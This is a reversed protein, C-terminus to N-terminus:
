PGRPRHPIPPFAPTASTVRPHLTLTTIASTTTTTAPPAPATAIRHLHLLTVVSPPTLAATSTSESSARTSQRSGNRHSFLHFSENSHSSQYSTAFPSSQSVDFSRHTPSASSPPTPYPQHPTASPSPWYAPIGQLGKLPWLKSKNENKKKAAPPPSPSAASATSAASTASTAAAAQAELREKAATIYPNVHSSGLGTEQSPEPATLPELLYKHASIFVKSILQYVLSM